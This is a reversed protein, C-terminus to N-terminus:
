SPLYLLATVYFGPQSEYLVKDIRFGDFDTTGMVKANLPTPDFGGGMLNLLKLRVQQQRAEAQQRTTIAAITNRRAVEDRAAIADLYRYLQVRAVNAPDNASPKVLPAVQSFAVSHLFLACAMIRFTM